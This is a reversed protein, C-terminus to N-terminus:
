GRGAHRWPTIARQALVLAGDAVLALLIALGGAAILETNFSDQIAQLIPAGLGIPSIYAAVTALSITTVTAVRIGATIAPVALRVNIRYFIQRPTMGMGRAAAVVDPPASRLGELTNRFLVLLTYGVLGIEITLTGLGTVPVFLEFFALSPITYLLTSLGVFGQEFWGQRFAVLAAALSIVLGIAVAVATLEIHQLLAPELRTSWNQTVWGPCFLSRANAVCANTKGFNPIVPGPPPSPPPSGAAALLAQAFRPGM